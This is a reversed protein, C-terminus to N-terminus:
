SLSWHRVKNVRYHSIYVFNQDSFGIPLFWESSVPTSQFIINSYIKPFYPSSKDPEPCLGTAPYQSCLLSIDPEM